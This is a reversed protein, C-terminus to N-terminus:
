GRARRVLRWAGPLALAAIAIKLADGALFPWLGKDLAKGVGWHMYAGLWTVGFAYIVLNGAIMTGVTRVVSRDGGRAALRGVLPAAFVFGILYGVTPGWHGASGDAFWPVGAAGALVYLAAAAFGRLPGLAAGVLLAGLTQGTLPVPTFPLPVSVQASLGILASGGAVLLADMVATTPLPLRDALVGAALPQSTSM